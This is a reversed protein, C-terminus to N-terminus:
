TKTSAKRRRRRRRRRIIIIIITIIIIIIIIVSIMRKISNNHISFRDPFIEFSLFSRLLVLSVTKACDNFAM